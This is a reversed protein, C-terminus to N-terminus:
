RDTCFYLSYDGTNEQCFLAYDGIFILTLLPTLSGDEFPFFISLVELIIIGVNSVSPESLM